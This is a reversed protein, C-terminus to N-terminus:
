DVWNKQCLFKIGISM